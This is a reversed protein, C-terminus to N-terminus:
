KKSARKQFPILDFRSLSAIAKEGFVSCYEVYADYDAIDTTFYISVPVGEGDTFGSTKVGVSFKDKLHPDKRIDDLIQHRWRTLNTENGEDKISDPDISISFSVQRMKKSITRHWNKFATTQFTYAPVTFTTNDFAKIKVTILAIDVVEGEVGMSPISIWDGIELMNESTIQVGAVLGVLADKFVISIIATFAGFGSILILPNQNLLISVIIISLIICIAIKLVQLPGKIPRKRSIPKTQYLDNFVDLSSCAIFMVMILCGISSIKSFISGIGAFFFFASVPTTIKHTTVSESLKAIIKNNSKSLKKNLVKLAINIILAIGLSIALKILSSLIGFLLGEGLIETLWSDILEYM